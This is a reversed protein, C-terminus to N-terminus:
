KYSFVHNLWMLFKLFRTIFSLNSHIRPPNARLVVYILAPLFDDASVPNSVPIIERTSEEESDRRLVDTTSNNSINLLEFVLKSCNIILNLKDQPARLGDM